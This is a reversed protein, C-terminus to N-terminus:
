RQRFSSMPPRSQRSGLFLSLALRRPASSQNITYRATSNHNQGQGKGVLCLNTRTHNTWTSQICHSLCLIILVHKTGSCGRAKFFLRVRFSFLYTSFFLFSLLPLFLSLAFPERIVKTENRCSSSTCRTGLWVNRELSVMSFWVSSDKTICKTGM